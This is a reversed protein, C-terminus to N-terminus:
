ETIWGLEKFKRYYGTGIVIQFQEPTLPAKIEGINAMKWLRKAEKQKKAFEAKRNLESASLYSKGSKEVYHDLRTKRKKDM